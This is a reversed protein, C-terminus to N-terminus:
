DYELEFELGYNSSSPNSGSNTNKFVWKGSSNLFFQTKDIQYIHKWGNANSEKTFPWNKWYFNWPKHGFPPDTLQFIMEFDKAITGSVNTYQFDVKNVHRIPEHGDYDADAEFFMIYIKDKDPNFNESLIDMDSKLTANGSSSKIYNNDVYKVRKVESRKFKLTAADNELYAWGHELAGNNAVILYSAMIEYRRGFYDERYKIVDDPDPGNLRHKIDDLVKINKVRLQRKKTPQCDSCNAPTEDGCPSMDCHDDGCTPTQACTVGFQEPKEYKSRIFVKIIFWNPNQTSPLDVEQDDFKEYSDFPVPKINLTNPDWTYAVIGTNGNPNHFGESIIPVVLIQKSSLVSWDYEGKHPMSLMFWSELAPGTGVKITFKEEM